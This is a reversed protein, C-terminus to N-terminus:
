NSKILRRILDGTIALVSGHESKNWRIEFFEIKQKAWSTSRTNTASSVRHGFLEIAGRM